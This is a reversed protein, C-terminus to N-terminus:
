PFSHSEAVDIVGIKPTDYSEVTGSNHCLELRGLVIGLHGGDLYKACVSVETTLRRVKCCGVM